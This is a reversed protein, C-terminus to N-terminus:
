KESFTVAKRIRSLNGEISSIRLRLGDEQELRIAYREIQASIEAIM